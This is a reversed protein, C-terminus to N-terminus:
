SPLGTLGDEVRKQGGPRHAPQTTSRSQQVPAPAVQGLGTLPSLGYGPADAGPLSALFNWALGPLPSLIMGTAPWPNGPNYLAVYVGYRGVRTSFHSFRARRGACVRSFGCRRQPVGRVGDRFGRECEGSVFLAVPEESSSSAKRRVPLRTDELRQRGWVGSEATQGNALAFPSQRREWSM